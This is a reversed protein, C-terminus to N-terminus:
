QALATRFRWIAYLHAFLLIFITIAYVIIWSWRITSNRASDSGYAFGIIYVIMLLIGGGISTALVFMGRRLWSSPLTSMYLMSDVLLIFATAAGMLIGIAVYGLAAANLDRPALFIRTPEIFGFWIFLLVGYQWISLWLGPFLASTVGSM